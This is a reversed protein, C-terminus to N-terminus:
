RSYIDRVQRTIGIIKQYVAAKLVHFRTTGKICCGDLFLGKPPM